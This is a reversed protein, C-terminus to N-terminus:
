GSNNCPRQLSLAAYVTASLHLSCSIVEIATELSRNNLRGFWSKASAPLASLVGRYLAVALRRDGEEDDPVGTGCDPVM